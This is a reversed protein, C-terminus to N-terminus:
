EGWGVGGWRFSRGLWGMVGVYERTRNKTGIFGNLVKERFEKCERNESFERFM